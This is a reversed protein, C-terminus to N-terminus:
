AAGLLSLLAEESELRELFWKLTPSVTNLQWALKFYAKKKIHHSLELEVLQGTDLLPQAQLRPLYGVGLGFVQARMKEAM